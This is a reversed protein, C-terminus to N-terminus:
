NAPEKSQASLPRMLWHNCAINRYAARCRCCCPHRCPTNGSLVRMLDCNFRFLAARLSARDQVHTLNHTLADGQEADFLGFNTLMRAYATAAYKLVREDKETKLLSETAQYAKVLTERQSPGLLWRLQNGPFQWGMHDGPTM